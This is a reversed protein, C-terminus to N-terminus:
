RKTGAASASASPDQLNIPTTAKRRLFPRANFRCLLFAADPNQQDQQKTRTSARDAHLLIQADLVFRHVVLGRKDQVFIGDREAWSWSKRWLDGGDDSSERMGIM